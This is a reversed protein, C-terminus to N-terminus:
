LDERKHVAKIIPILIITVLGGAFGNNYLNFGAHLFGVNNVMANHVFGAVAGWIIGFEGAIPAVTTGFLAALVNNPSGLEYSNTLSAITVGVMVPMVNRLHKGLAAFGAVTMIGGVTPGNLQSKTLLVYITSIAGLLGINMLTFPLGELVIFDTLLRGSHRLLKKYGRWSRGNLLWGCLWVFFFLSILFLSLILNNGSSWVIQIPIQIGYVRLFAAAVTGILGCTFGVNYLNYGKHLTLFYSAMSPLFFGVLIGVGYSIAFRISHDFPSSFAVFSVLPSIATGFYAVYIYRQVPEKKYLSYLVVGLIIPWVNFINKGFLAFGGVTLVSAYSLGTIPVKLLQLILTFFLMLIGSNFFAASLGGIQIYDTLLYDPTRIIELLDNLFETPHRLGNSFIGFLTFSFGFFYLISVKFKEQDKPFFKKLLARFVEFFIHM